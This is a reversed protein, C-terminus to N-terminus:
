FGNGYPSPKKAKREWPPVPGGGAMPKIALVRTVFEHGYMQIRMIEPAKSPRREPTCDYARREHGRKAALDAMNDKQTGLFLHDQNICTRVDCRHLVFLGTPIPGHQAMWAARHASRLRGHCSVLGYGRNNRCATWLICGTQPDIVSHRALRQQLLRDFPRQSESM